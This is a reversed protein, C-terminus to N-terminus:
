QDGGKKRRVFSWTLLGVAALVCLWTFLDGLVVYVTRSELLAVSFTLHGPPVLQREAFYCHYVPHDNPIPEFAWDKQYEIGQTMLADKLMGRQPKDILVGHRWSCDIFLFGGSTLYLGLNQAEVEPLKFPFRSSSFV